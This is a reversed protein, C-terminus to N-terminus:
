MYGKQMLVQTIDKPHSRPRGLIDYDSYIRMMEQMYNKAEYDDPTDALWGRCDFDFFVHDKVEQNPASWYLIFYLQWDEDQYGNIFKCDAVPALYAIRINKIDDINKATKLANYFDKCPAKLIACKRLEMFLRFDMGKEMYGKYNSRKLYFDDFLCLTLDDYVDDDEVINIFHNDKLAQKIKDFEMDKDSFRFCTNYDFFCLIVELTLKYM